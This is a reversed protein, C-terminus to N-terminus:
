RDLGKLTSQEVNLKKVELNGLGSKFYAENLFKYLMVFEKYTPFSATNKAVEIILKSDDYSEIEQVSEMYRFHEFCKFTFDYLSYKLEPNNLKSAVSAAYRTFSARLNRVDDMIWLKAQEYAPIAGTKDLNAM